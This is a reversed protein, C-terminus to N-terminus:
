RSRAELERLADTNKLKENSKAYDIVMKGFSDKVKADAGTKGPDVGISLLTASGAGMLKAREVAMMIRERRESAKRGWRPPGYVAWVGGLSYIGRQGDQVLGRWRGDADAPLEEGGGAM